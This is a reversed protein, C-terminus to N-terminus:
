KDLAKRLFKSVTRDLRERTQPFRDQGQSDPHAGSSRELESSNNWVQM